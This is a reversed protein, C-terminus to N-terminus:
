SASKESFTIGSNRLSNLVPLYIEKSIPTQVGRARIRGSAVLLTAMALPLGVTKAMATSVADEGAISLTSTVKESQGNQTYELVHRLLVLDHDGEQLEWKREILKQIFEAPTAESGLDDFVLKEDMLGLWKLKEYVPDGESLHLYQALSVHEPLFSNLLEKMSVNTAKGLKVGNDTLGLAVLFHWADCYGKKRITGRLFTEIGELGYMAIYALSDRNPYAEYEGFGEFFLPETRKFLQHYPVFKIKGGELFQATGQGALVVNRPNWTVKYGWPNTDSEPAVLGGCYSKFSTISGGESQINEILQMASMHDLGPDLGCEMLFILDLDQAEQHLARIEESVYSATLLHKRYTLCLKAVTLHLFPPLMSLVIDSQSVLSALVESSGLDGCFTQVSPFLRTKSVINEMRMDAVTLSVSKEKALHEILVGSSKGAGLVTIKQM